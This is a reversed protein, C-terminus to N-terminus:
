KEKTKPNNLRETLEASYRLYVGRGYKDGGFATCPANACKPHPPEGLSCKSCLENFDYAPTYIRGEIIIGNIKEM